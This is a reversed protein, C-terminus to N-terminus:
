CRWSIRLGREVSPVGRASAESAGPCADARNKPGLPVTERVGEGRLSVKAATGGTGAGPPPRIQGAAFAALMASRGSSWGSTFPHLAVVKHRVLAQVRARQIERRREESFDLPRGAEGVDFPQEFGCRAFQAEAVIRHDMVVIVAGRRGAEDVHVVIRGVIGRGIEAAEIVAVVRDNVGADGGVGAECPAFQGVQDFQGRAVAREQFAARPVANGVADGDGGEHQALAAAGAVETARAGGVQRLVVDGGGLDDAAKGELFGAADNAAARARDAGNTELLALTFARDEGGLALAVGVDGGDEAQSGRRDFGVDFGGAATVLDVVPRLQDDGRDEIAFDAEVFDGWTLVAVQRGLFNRQSTFRTRSDAVPM